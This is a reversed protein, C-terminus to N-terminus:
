TIHEMQKDTGAAARRAAAEQEAVVALGRAYTFPPHASLPGSM